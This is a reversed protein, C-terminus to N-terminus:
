LPLISYDIIKNTHLAEYEAKPLTQIPANVFAIPNWQCLYSSDDNDYSSYLWAHGKLGDHVFYTPHVDGNVDYAIYTRSRLGLIPDTCAQNIPKWPYIDHMFMFFEKTMALGSAGGEIHGESRLTSLISREEDNIERPDIERSNVMVYALYPYFHFETVSLERGLFAIAKTNIENTLEGRKPM